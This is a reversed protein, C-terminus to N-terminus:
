SSVTIHGEPLIAWQHEDIRRFIFGTEADTRTEGIPMDPAGTRRWACFIAYDENAQYWTPRFPRLWWPPEKRQPKTWPYTITLTSM